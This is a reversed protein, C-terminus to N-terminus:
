AKKIIYKDDSLCFEDSLEYVDVDFIEEIKKNNKNLVVLFYEDDYDICSYQLKSVLYKEYGPFYIYHYDSVFSESDDHKETHKYTVALKKIHFEGKNFEKVDGDRRYIWACLFGVAVLSPIPFFWMNASNCGWLVLYWFTIAFITLFIMGKKKKKYQVIWNSIKAIDLVLKHIKRYEKVAIKYKEAQEKSLSAFLEYWEKHGTILDFEEEFERVLCEIAKEENGEFYKKAFDNFDM